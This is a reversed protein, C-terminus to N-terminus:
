SINRYFNTIFNKIVEDCCKLIQNHSMTTDFYIRGGMVKDYLQYPMNEDITSLLMFENDNCISMDDEKEDFFSITKGQFKTIIQYREKPFLIPCLYIAGHIFKYNNYVYKALYGGSSRGLVYVPLNRKQFAPIYQQCWKKFESYKKPFEPQYVIFGMNMLMNNQETDYTMKGGSFCGGHFTIIIGIPNSTYYEIFNPFSM